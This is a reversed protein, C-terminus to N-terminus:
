AAEHPHDSIQFVVQHGFAEARTGICRPRLRGADQTRPGSLEPLRLYREDDRKASVEVDVHRVSITELDTDIPMESRMLVLFRLFMRLDLHYEDITKPSQGKITEHYALFQRLIEPTDPDIM